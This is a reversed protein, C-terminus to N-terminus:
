RHGSKRRFTSNNEHGSFHGFTHLIDLPNSQHRGVNQLHRFTTRHDKHDLRRQLQTISIGLELSHAAFSNRITEPSVRKTIGAKSAAMRLASQFGNPFLHHRRKAGDDATCIERSPFLWQWGTSRSANPFKKALQGPLWVEGFGNQLDLAHTATTQRVKERLADAISKPMPVVRNKGGKGDKVVIIGNGFDLDRIRLRLLEMLRLGTGYGLQTLLLWDGGLQGCLSLLEEKTLIEPVNAVRTAREAKIEGLEKELGFRFLFLLANFAQNQTAAAVKRETALHSLYDTVMQGTFTEPKQWGSWACFDSVWHVYADETRPSMRRARMKERLAKIFPSKQKFATISYSV